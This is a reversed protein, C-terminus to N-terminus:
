RLNKENEEKILKAWDVNMERLERDIDFGIQKIAREASQSRYKYHVRYAALLGWMLILMVIIAVTDFPPIVSDAIYVGLVLLFSEGASLILIAYKKRRTIM